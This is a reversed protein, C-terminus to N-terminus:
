RHVTRVVFEYEDFGSYELDLVRLTMGHEDDCAIVPANVSNALGSRLVRANWSEDLFLHLRATRSNVYGSAPQNAHGPEPDATIVIRPVWPLQGGILTSITRDFYDRAASWTEATAANAPWKKVIKTELGTLTIPQSFAHSLEIPPHPNGYADIDNEGLRALLSAIDEFKMVKTGSLVARLRDSKVGRNRCFEEISASGASTAAVDRLARAVHNQLQAGACASQTGGEPIHWAVNSRHGFLPTDGNEDPALYDKPLPRSGPM